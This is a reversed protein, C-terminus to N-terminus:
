EFTPNVLTVGSITPSVVGCNPPFKSRLELSIVPVPFTLTVPIVVILVPIPVTWIPAPLVVNTTWPSALTVPIRVTPWPDIVISGMALFIVPISSITTPLAVVFRVLIFCFAWPRIANSLSSPVSADTPIPEVTETLVVPIIVAM